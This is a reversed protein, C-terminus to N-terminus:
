GCPDIRVVEADVADDKLIDKIFHAEARTGITLLDVSDQILDRVEALSLDLVVRMAKFVLVRDKANAIQVGWLGEQWIHIAHLNAPLRGSGDGEIECGCGACRFSESWTIGGLYLAEGHRLKGSYRDGFGV